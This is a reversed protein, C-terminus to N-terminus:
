LGMGSLGEFFNDKKVCINSFSFCSIFKFHSNIEIEYYVVWSRPDFLACSYM